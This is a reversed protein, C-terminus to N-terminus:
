KFLLYVSYILALVGIVKLYSEYIDAMNDGSSDKLSFIHQVEFVLNTFKICMTGVIGLVITSIINSFSLNRFNTTCAVLVGALYITFIAKELLSKLKEKRILNSKAKNKLAEYDEFEKSLCDGNKCLLNEDENVEGCRKCIKM